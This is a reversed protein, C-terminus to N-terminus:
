KPVAIDTSEDRGRLVETDVIHWHHAESQQARSLAAGSAVVGGCRKAVDTLRAAENVPDGIVTYEYRGPDGINGAVATGASVGIGAKLDGGSPNLRRNLERAAALAHGSNDDTPVPAGFIALVADGEFKNILGRHREIVEVVVAFFDNLM